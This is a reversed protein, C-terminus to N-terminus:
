EECARVYARGRSHLLKAVGRRRPRAVAKGRGEDRRGRESARASHRASGQARVASATRSHVRAHMASAPSPALAGGGFHPSAPRAKKAM